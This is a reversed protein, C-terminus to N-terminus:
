GAFFLRGFTLTTGELFRNCTSIAIPQEDNIQGFDCRYRAQPAPDFERNNKGSPFVEV